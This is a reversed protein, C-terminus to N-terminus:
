FTYTGKRYSCFRSNIVSHTVSMDEIDAMPLSYELLQNVRVEIQKPLKSDFSPTPYVTLTFNEESRVGEIDQLIITILHEGIQSIKTPKV